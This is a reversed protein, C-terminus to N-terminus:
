EHHSFVPDVAEAVCSDSFVEWVVLFLGVEKGIDVVLRLLDRSLSWSRKWHIILSVFVGVLSSAVDFNKLCDWCNSPVM